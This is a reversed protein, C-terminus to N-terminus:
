VPHVHALRKHVLALLLYPRNASYVSLQQEDSAPLDQIFPYLL